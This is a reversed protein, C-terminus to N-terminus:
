EVDAHLAVLLVGGADRLEELLVRHDLPDGVGAEGRVRLVRERLTLHAAEAAHEIEPDAAPKRGRAAEQLGHPQERAGLRAAADITASRWARLGTTVACM